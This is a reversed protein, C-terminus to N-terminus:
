ANMWDLTRQWRPEAQAQWESSDFANFISLAVHATGKPGTVAWAVSNPLAGDQATAGTVVPDALFFAIGASKLEDITM